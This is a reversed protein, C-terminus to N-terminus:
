LKGKQKSFTGIKFPRAGTLSKQALIQEQFGEMPIQGFGIEGKM